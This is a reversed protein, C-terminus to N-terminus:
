IPTSAGLPNPTHKSDLRPYHLNLASLAKLRELRASIRQAFESRRELFAHIREAVLEWQPELTGSDVSVTEIENAFGVLELLGEVKGQYRFCFAPVGQSLAAISFHMRGSVVADLRQAIAKLQRPGHERRVVSLRHQLEPPLHSLTDLAADLDSSKTRFDHAVLLLSLRPDRTALSSLVRALARRGGADVLLANVGIGVVTQGRARQEAIWGLQEEAEADDSELLFALDAAQQVKRGLLASLRRESEPDRVLLGLSTPLRRWLEAVSAAPTACFSFSVIRTDCGAYAFTQAASLRLLTTYPSYFGDVIDAGILRYTHTRNLLQRMRWPQRALGELSELEVGFQRVLDAHSESRRYCLLVCRGSYRRRLDALLV